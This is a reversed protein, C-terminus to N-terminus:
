EAAKLLTFSGDANLEWVSSTRMGDRDEPGGGPGFSCVGSVGQHNKVKTLADRIALRDAQLSDPTNKIDVGELAEAIIQITDYVQAHNHDPAQGIAPSYENVFDQVMQSPNDPSFTTVFVAGVAAEGATSFFETSSMSSFGGIVIDKSLGVDYAQNLARAMEVEHGAMIIADPDADKIKLMQSKFDVDGLTWKETIVPDIGWKEKMRDMFNGSQGVGLAETEYVVAIKKKGLDGVIYDCLSYAHYIDSVSMRFFWESRLKKTLDANTSQPTILPCEAEDAIGIIGMASSSTTPGIAILVEDQFILRNLADSAKSPDGASDYITLDIQHGNIGGASNIDAFAKEATLRMKNGIQDSIRLLIGFKYPVDDAGASGAGSQEQGGGAFIMGSVSVMVMLIVLLKKM